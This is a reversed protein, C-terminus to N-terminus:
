PCSITFCASPPMEWVSEKKGCDKACSGDRLQRSKGEAGARASPRLGRGLGEGTTTPAGQTQPQSGLSLSTVSAPHVSSRLVWSQGLLPTSLMPQPWVPQHQVVAQDRMARHHLCLKPKETHGQGSLTTLHVEWAPQSSMWSQTPELSLVCYSTPSYSCGM